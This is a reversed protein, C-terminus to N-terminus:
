RRGRASTPGTGGPPSGSAAAPVRAACWSRRPPSRTRRPAPRRGAPRRVLEAEQLDPGQGRAVLRRVDRSSSSRRRRRAPPWRRPGPCRGAPRCGRCRRRAAPASRGRGCGRLDGRLDALKLRRSRRPPGARGAARARASPSTAVAPQADGHAPVLDGAGPDDDLGIQVVELDRGALAGMEELVQGAELDAVQGHVCPWPWPRRSQSQSAACGARWSPSKTRCRRRSSGSVTSISPRVRRPTTRRGPFPRSAAPAAAASGVGCIERARGSEAQWNGTVDVGRGRRWPLVALAHLPSCSAPSGLM